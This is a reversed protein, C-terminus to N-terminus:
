NLIYHYLAFFAPSTFIIKDMYSLTDQKSIAFLNVEKIGLDKKIVTIIIRGLHSTTHIILGCFIWAEQKYYEVYPTILGQFKWSLMLILGGSIFFGEVSIRSSINKFPYRKGLLKSLSTSTSVSFASLIYMYLVLYVGEAQNLLKGLFLPSWAFFSFAMLSLSMYQIMNKATNKILPILSISAMLLGPSILLFLIQDQKIYYASIISVIYTAWVFGSRHYMGTVQFFSKMSQLSILVLFVLPWPPTTILLLFVFPTLLLWSKWSTWTAAYKASSKRKFFLLAGILILLTFVSLVTDIFLPSTLIQTRFM